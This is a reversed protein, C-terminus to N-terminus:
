LKFRNVKELMGGTMSSLEQATAAVEETSASMEESSASIEQSSASVQESVSAAAEIKEVISDKSERISISETHVEQMKSTIGAIAELIGDFSDSAIQVLEIEKTLEQDMEDSTRIVAGSNEIIDEVLSNINESSKRSEEALKRIEDAVVAFGRGAEGARAAEISANLALLNTQSAIGNIVSSIENIKDIKQQLISLTQMNSGFVDKVERISKTLNDMNEGSKKAMTSIETGNGNVKGIADVINELAASFEATINTIVELEMAQHSAGQAIDQVAMTVNESAGMMQQANVSLIEAHSDISGSNERIEMIMDAFSTQTKDLARAIEGFEDRADLISAPVKMTLDGEALTALHEIVGQIKRLIERNILVAMAFVAILMMVASVGLITLIIPMSQEMIKKQSIGGLVMGINDGDKDKVPLYYVQYQEGSITKEGTYTEGKELVKKVLAAEAKIGTARADGDKITTAIVTDGLYIAFEIGASEKVSDMMDNNDNILKNGKYLKDGVIYWQGLSKVDLLTLSLDGSTKLTNTTIYNTLQSQIAIMIVGGFMLMILVVLLMIKTGLKLKLNLKKLM